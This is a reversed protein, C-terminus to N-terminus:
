KRVYEVFSFGEHNERNVENWETSKIEPFYVDGPYEKHVETIYLKHAKSITQRFITEGGIIFLEDSAHNELAQEIDSYVEVEEPVEYNSNNTIVINKRNPLPKGLRNFISEYTKRGMLVTHGSTIQKFRKLDEPLYWPLDNKSGIINHPAVAAILSIM